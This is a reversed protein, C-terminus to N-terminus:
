RGTRFGTREHSGDCFPKSTSQGCRCLSGRMKVCEQGYQNHLRLRGRFTIPGDKICSITIKSPRSSASIESAEVIKGSHLFERELHQGDCNPKSGSHGCRCLTLHNAYQVTGDENVLTINGTIQLPGGNTVMVENPVDLLRPQSQNKQRQSFWRDLAKATTTLSEKQGTTSPASEEAADDMYAIFSDSSKASTSERDEEVRAAAAAALKTADDM